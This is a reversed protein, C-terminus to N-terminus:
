LNMTKEKNEFESDQRKSEKKKTLSVHDSFEDVVGDDKTKKGGYAGKKKKKNKDVEEGDYDFDDGDIDDRKGKGKNRNIDANPQKELKYQSEIETLYEASRIWWECNVELENPIVHKPKNCPWSIVGCTGGSHSRPITLKYSTSYIQCVPLLVELIWMWSFGNISCYIKKKKNEGNPMREFLNHLHPFTNDWFYNGWPFRNWEEFNNVLNLLRVDLKKTVQYGEFSIVLALLFLRVVDEDNLEDVIVDGVLSTCAVEEHLEDDENNHFVSLALAGWGLLWNLWIVAGFVRISDLLIVLIGMLNDGTIGLFGYGVKALGSIRFGMAFQYALTIRYGFLLGYGNFDVGVKDDSWPLCGCPSHWLWSDQAVVLIVDIGLGQCRLLRRYLGVQLDLGLHLLKDGEAPGLFAYISKGSKGPQGIKQIAQRWREM